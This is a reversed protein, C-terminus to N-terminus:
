ESFLKSRVQVIERQLYFSDFAHSTQCGKQSDGPHHHQLGCKSVMLLQHGNRAAVGDVVHHLASLLHRVVAAAVGFITSVLKRASANSDSSAEDCRRLTLVDM